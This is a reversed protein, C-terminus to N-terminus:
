TRTIATPAATGLPTRRVSNWRSDAESLDREHLIGNTDRLSSLGQELCALRTFAGEIVDDSTEVCRQGPQLLEYPQIKASVGNLAIELDVQLGHDDSTLDCLSEHPHHKTGPPVANRNLLGCVLSLLFSIV